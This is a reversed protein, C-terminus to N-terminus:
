PAFRPKVASALIVGLLCFSTAALAVILINWGMLVYFAGAGLACVAIIAFELLENFGQATAREEPDPIRALIETASVYVFNWGAGVLFLGLAFPIFAKAEFLCGLGGIMVIGGASLLQRASYKSVLRSAFMSPIFMGILHLQIIGGTAGVSLGCGVAAVPLATMATVMVGFAVGSATLALGVTPRKLASGLSRGVHAVPVRSRKDEIGFALIASSVSFLAVATYSGLFMPPALVADLLAGFQPGVLVGVLSLGITWAVAQRIASEAVSEAAAFRYYESTAQFVGFVASGACLLPFSQVVIATMCLIAAALGAFSGFIFCTKRGLRQMLLSLPFTVLATAVHILAFPLTALIKHDALYFGALGSVVLCVAGAATYTMQCSALCFLNRSWLTERHSQFENTMLGDM